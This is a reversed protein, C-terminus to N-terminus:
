TATEVTSRTKVLGWERNGSSSEADEEETSESPSLLTVQDEECKFLPSVLTLRLFQELVSDLSTEASTGPRARLVLKGPESQVLLFGSMAKSLLQFVTQVKSVTQPSNMLGGRLCVRRKLVLELHLAELLIALAIICLYLARYKNIRPTRTRIETWISM